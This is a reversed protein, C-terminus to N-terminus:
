TNRRKTCRSPSSARGFCGICINADKVTPLMIFALEPIRFGPGSNAARGSFCGVVDSIMEFCGSVLMPYVTLFGLDQDLEFVAGVDVARTNADLGQVLHRRSEGERVM